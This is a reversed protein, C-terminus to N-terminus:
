LVARVWDLTRRMCEEFPTPPEYGLEARARDIGFWCDLGAVRVRYRTILPASRLRLLSHVGELFSGAAYAVPYPVSRRIPARGLGGCILDMLERWTIRVGDAIVYTRGAAAPVEGALAIGHVLNGAYATCLTARGGGVHAYAGLHQVLPLFSTRDLPGFPFLGPRVIVGEIAGAAHAGTVVDEAAIKSAGYGLAVNDRPLDENGNAIGSFRHVAISSVLVFRRAGAKAAADCVTRTGGANIRLFAERPGWDNVMAALHFVTEVGRVADAISAADLVDGRVVEAGTGELNDLSTGPQAMVRVAHGAEELRRVLHSGIFGNGGTVLTRM